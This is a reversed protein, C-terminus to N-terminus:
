NAPVATWIQTKCVISVCGKMELTGDDLLKIKSKYDTGSEADYVRGKSWKDGKAKFGWLMRSGLIPKKALEPDPNNTDLKGALEPDTLHVVTGCPTGDGCDAIKIHANGGETLWTGYVAKGDAAFAPSALTLIATTLLFKKM